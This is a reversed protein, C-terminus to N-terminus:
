VKAYKTWWNPHNSQISTAAKRAAAETLYLGFCTGGSGSMRILACDHTNSITSLVDTIIPCTKIAASQMDNRQESLFTVFDDFGSFNEPITVPPNDRSEMEAFVHGTNVEQGANVLVMWFLPLPPLASLTEGIGQMRTPTQSLCVPIDASLASLEQISPMPAGTLESLLRVSAAGDASGGGIGSAVPLNKTLHLKASVGMLRAAQLVLNDGSLGAGFPGDIDLSLNESAVATLVDGIEPFVVVSDLLHMGDDRRGTIHLCLNVKARAVETLM